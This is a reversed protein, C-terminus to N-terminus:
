PVLRPWHVWVLPGIVGGEGAEAAVFSAAWIITSYTLFASGSPTTLRLSLLDGALWSDAGLGEFFGDQGAPTTVESVADTGNVRFQLVSDDPSSNATVNICLGVVRGELPASIQQQTETDLHYNLGGIALDTTTGTPARGQQGLGLFFEGNTSIAQTCLALVQTVGVTSGTTDVRWGAKDEAVFAIDPSTVEFWGIDGTPVTIAMATDVGNKQLTFTTPGDSTNARVYVRGNQLTCDIPICDQREVQPGVDDPQGHMSLYNVFGAGFSAPSSSNCVFQSVTHDPDDPRFVISIAGFEASGDFVGGHQVHVSIDDGPVVSVTNASDLMHGIQGPAVTVALATLVGNKFVEFFLSATTTLNSTINVGLLSFSGAEYCRLDGSLPHANGSPACATGVLWFSLHGPSLPHIKGANVWLAPPM